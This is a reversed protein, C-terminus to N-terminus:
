KKKNKAYKRQTNRKFKGSKKKNKKNKDLISLDNEFTHFDDNINVNPEAEILSKPKTGKKNLMMIEKIRDLHLPVLKSNDTKSMSYWVTRKLVERKKPYAIGDELELEFLVEPFDNQAELYTDMEYMLCCKLKGCQGTLKQINHPLEQVKAANSLVSDLNTRWSSCCLEKGCSGIGGVMAAEQRAGIQRMEIRVKFENAYLKILERFDVRGDAIYYFTAKTGDGQFEVDSIKMELKLHEVLQRARIMVPKERLRAKNLKEVDALTAKRFVINETKNRPNKKKLQLEAMRGTLTVQGVDHGQKTSLAVYDGRRIPLNHKNIFFEKRTNKFRVETILEDSINPLTDLWDYSRLKGCELADENNIDTTRDLIQKAQCNNCSMNGYNLEMAFCGDAIITETKESNISYNLTILM